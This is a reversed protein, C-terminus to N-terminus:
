YIDGINRALNYSCGKGGAASLDACFGADVGLRIATSGRKGHSSELTTREIGDSTTVLRYVHPQIVMDQVNCEELILSGGVKLPSAESSDSSKVDSIMYSNGGAHGKRPPCSWHASFYTSNYSDLIVRSGARFRLLTYSPGLWKENAALIMCRELAIVKFPKANWLHIRACGMPRKFGYAEAQGSYDLSTFVKGFQTPQVVIRRPSWVCLQMYM